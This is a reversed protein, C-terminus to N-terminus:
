IMCRLNTVYHQSFLPKVYSSTQKQFLEMGKMKHYISGMPYSLVVPWLGPMRDMTTFWMALVHKYFHNWAGSQTHQSGYTMMLQM